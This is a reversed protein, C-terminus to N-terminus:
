QFEKEVDHLPLDSAITSLEALCSNLWVFFASGEESLYAPALPTLQSELTKARSMAHRLKKMVHCQIRSDEDQPSRVAALFLGFLYIYVHYAGLAQDFPWKNRRWELDKNWPSLVMASERADYEPSLLGPSMYLDFLKTHVAEHLLSEAALWPEELGGAFLFIAGPITPTSVSDFYALSQADSATFKGDVAYTCILKVHQLCSMATRPLLNLLIKHGEEAGARASATAAVLEVDAPSSRPAIESEYLATMLTACEPAVRPNLWMQNSGLTAGNQGTRVIASSWTQITAQIPAALDENGGHMLRWMARRAVYRTIPHLALESLAEPGSSEILEHISSVLSDDSAFELYARVREVCSAFVHQTNGFPGSFLLQDIEAANLTNM